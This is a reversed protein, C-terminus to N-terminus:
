TVTSNKTAHFNQMEVWIYKVCCSLTTESLEELVLSCTVLLDGYECFNSKLKVQRMYPM